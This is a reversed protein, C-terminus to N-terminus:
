NKRPYIIGILLVVVGALSLLNSIKEIPTQIFQMSIIHEGKDVAVDLGRNSIEFDTKKGDVLINWAPFYATNVRMISDQLFNVKATLGQTKNSLVEVSGNKIAIKNKVIEKSLKPKTFDKPMYEDSIRSTTWKITTESVYDKNSVSLYKQPQFYKINYLLLAILLLCLAFLKLRFDKFYSFVAGALSSSFFSTLLLFRWPYQFFAMLPVAEWVPKSIELTLFLSVFFGFFSLLIISKNKFKNILILILLIVSLLIHLKGLKFSMGDICGPVSGGFGWPSDWLQEICVFHDRFDAGAGIQSLVNTYKMELLAPLWYFASLLLGLFITFLLYYITSLNKNKYAIYCYLLIVILLFPTVMLATLNHSLIIGAYGISGVIIWRWQYNSIRFKFNSIVKSTLFVKYSGLFMLPIFAYAFVESIDGRVYIDVAHYPAYVYFLGAAIGGFEGWFERALLYMFVGSLVIGLGMMIKTAILADLGLINFFGGVYYALPAYFNFIPYGYGYGLDAVWRVPFMGDKLAKGMEYVRAVQTDDHVAFFGPNFLPLIAFISLLLVLIFGFNKRILGM